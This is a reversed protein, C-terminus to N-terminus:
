TLQKHNLVVADGVVCDDSTISRNYIALNTAYFNFDHKMLKGEENIIMIKDDPLNYIVQIYGGVMEQLENLDYERKSDLEDITNDSKIYYAKDNGRLEHNQVRTPLIVKELRKENKSM